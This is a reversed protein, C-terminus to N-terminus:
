FFFVAPSEAYAYICAEGVDPSRGIRHRICCNNSSSQPNNCYKPEIKIGRPSMEWRASCLDSKLEPDPPLAIEHGNAPDLLERM